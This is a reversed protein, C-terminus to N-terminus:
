RSHKEMTQLNAFNKNRAVKKQQQDNMLHCQYKENKMVSCAKVIKFSYTLALKGAIILSHQLPLMFIGFFLCNRKGQFADLLFFSNSQTILKKKKKKSLQQQQQAFPSFTLRERPMKSPFLFFTGFGFTISHLQLVCCLELHLFALVFFSLKEWEEDDGAENESKERRKATLGFFLFHFVKSSLMSAALV